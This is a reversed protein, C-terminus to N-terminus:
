DSEISIYLPNVTACVSGHADCEGCRWSYTTIYQNEGVSDDFTEDISDFFIDDGCKPCVWWKNQNDRIDYVIEDELVIYSDPVDDRNAIRINEENFKYNEM